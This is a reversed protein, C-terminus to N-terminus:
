ARGVHLAPYYNLHRSSVPNIAVAGNKVVVEDPGPKPMPAEYVKFPHAKAEIWAASNSTM